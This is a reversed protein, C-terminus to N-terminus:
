RAVAGKETDRTRHGSGPREFLRDLSRVAALITAASSAVRCAAERTRPNASMALPAVSGGIAEIEPDIRAALHRAILAATALRESRLGHAVVADLGLGLSRFSTALERIERVGAEEPAVLWHGRQMTEVVDRIRRVPQVVLLALAMNLVIVVAALTAAGLILHRIVSQRGIAAPTLDPPMLDMRMENVVPVTTAHAAHIAVADRVEQRYDVALILLLASAMLPVVVLNFALRLGFRTAVRTWAPHRAPASEYPMLPPPSM